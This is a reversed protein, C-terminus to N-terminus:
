RANLMQEVHNIGVCGSERISFFRGCYIVPEIINWNERRAYMNWSSSSSSSTYNNLQGRRAFIQTGSFHLRGIQRRGLTPPMM